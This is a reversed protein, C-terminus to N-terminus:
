GRGLGATPTLAICRATKEDIHDIVELIIKRDEGAYLLGYVPAPAEEFRVDVVTGRVSTISGNFAPGSDAVQQNM